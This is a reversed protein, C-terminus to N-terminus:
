MEERKYKDIITPIISCCEVFGNKHVAKLAKDETSYAGILRDAGHLANETVVYVVNNKM